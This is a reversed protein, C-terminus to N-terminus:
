RRKLKPKGERPFSKVQEFAGADRVMTSEFVAHFLQLALGLSFLEVNDTWTCAHTAVRLSHFYCVKECVRSSTLITASSSKTPMFAHCLVGSQYITGPKDSIHLTM